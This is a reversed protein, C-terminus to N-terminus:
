VVVKSMQMLFTIVCSLGDCLRGGLAVVLFFRGGLCGGQENADSLHHCM